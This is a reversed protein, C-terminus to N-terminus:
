LTYSRPSGNTDGSSAVSRSSVVPAAPVTIAPRRLRPRQDCRLRQVPLLRRAVIGGPAEQGNAGVAHRGSDSFRRSCRATMGSLDSKVERARSAIEGEARDAG